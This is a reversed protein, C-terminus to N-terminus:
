FDDALVPVMGVSASAATSQVATETIMAVALNLLLYMSKQSLRVFREEPLAKSIKGSQLQLGRCM